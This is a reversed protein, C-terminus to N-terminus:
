LFHRKRLWSSLCKPLWGVAAIDNGDIEFWCSRLCNLPKNREL